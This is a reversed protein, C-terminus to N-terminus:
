EGKQNKLAKIRKEAKLIYVTSLVCFLTVMKNFSIQKRLEDYLKAPIVYIDKPM